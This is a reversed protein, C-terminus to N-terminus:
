CFHMVASSDRGVAGAASDARMDYRERRDSGDFWPAYM